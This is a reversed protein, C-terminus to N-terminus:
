QSVEGFIVRCSYGSRRCTLNLIPSTAAFVEVDFCSELAQSVAQVQNSLSVYGIEVNFVVDFDCGMRCRYEWSTEDLKRSVSEIFAQQERAKALGMELGAHKVALTRAVLEQYNM